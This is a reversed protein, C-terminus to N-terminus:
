QQELNWLVLAFNNIALNPIFCTIVRVFFSASNPMAWRIYYLILHVITFIPTGTKVDKFVAVFIMMYGFLSLAYLFYFFFILIVNSYKFVWLSLITVEVCVFLANLVYFIFWSVHYSSDLM